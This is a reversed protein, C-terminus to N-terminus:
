SRSLLPQKPLLDDNHGERKGTRGRWRITVRQDLGDVFRLLSLCRTGSSAFHKILGCTKPPYEGDSQAENNTLPIDLWGDTM